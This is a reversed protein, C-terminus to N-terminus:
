GDRGRPSGPGAPPGAARPDPGAGREAPPPPHRGRPRLGGSVGDRAVGEGAGLQGLPSAGGDVAQEVACAALEKRFLSGNGSTPTLYTRQTSVRVNTRSSCASPATSCTVASSPTSIAYSTQPRRSPGGTKSMWPRPVSERPQASWRM